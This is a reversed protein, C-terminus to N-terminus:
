VDISRCYPPQIPLPARAPSLPFSLLPKGPRVESGLLRMATLRSRHIVPGNYFRHFNSARGDGENSFGKLWAERGKELRAANKIM